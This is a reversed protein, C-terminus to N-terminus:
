SMPLSWDLHRSDVRTTTRPPLLKTSASSTTPHLHESLRRDRPEHEDLQVPEHGRPSPTSSLATDYLTSRATFRSAAGSTTLAAPTTTSFPSASATAAYCYISYPSTTIPFFFANRTQCPPKPLSRMPHPLPQCSQHVARSAVPWTITSLCKCSSCMLGLLTWTQPQQRVPFVPHPTNM